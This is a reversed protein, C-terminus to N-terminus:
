NEGCSSGIGAIGGGVILGKQIVPVPVPQLSEGMAVRAVAIRVLDGAKSTAAEPENIHVWSNHNRINAMEVLYENLGAARLTRRFLPEHTRPSCAAIVIRNLKQERIRQVIMDQSDQSCSFLNQEVYVVDPLTAAYLGLSEVDVVDAINSGCHCIFVGIRVGEGSVDREGPFDRDTSLEFRASALFDSVAGAAASGDVVSQSINIPGAFFGCAFIGKRSTQVPAFDSAALFNDGTLKIDAIRALELVHEPTKLGVSLVVMDYNEEVQRGEENVYCLRLDDCSGDNEVGNVRCRIFRIGPIERVQEMYRDFDKGHARMDMYFIAIQMDPYHSKSIAAEKLTSMCCVSSCYGNTCLNEDRSGVCQLFAMKRVARGDSPRVLSGRTPGSISLYRELQLSTIVNPFVGYGWVNGDAPDFPEFGPALVVAGVNIRHTKGRDSFNIAGADCVDACVGCADVRNLRLCADPDIQYKLPVAQLYQVYIAKRKGVGTGYERETDKPCKETCDGCSICKEMDVYRPSEKVAVSFNGARGNIETVECLTM